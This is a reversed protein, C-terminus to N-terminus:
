MEFKVSTVDHTALAAFPRVHQRSLEQASKKIFGSVIGSSTV